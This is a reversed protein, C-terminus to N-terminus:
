FEQVLISDWGFRIGTGPIIFQEDMIRALFRVQQLREEHSMDATLRRILDATAFTPTRARSSGGRFTGTSSM